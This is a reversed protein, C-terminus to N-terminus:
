IGIRRKRASKKSASVIHQKEMSLKTLLHYFFDRDPGKVVAQEHSEALAIPYGQGKIAQDLMIAAVHDVLRADQAIWAPIEVRGIETGVHLYFFHPRLEEPYADSLSANNCFVTSREFPELYFNAITTDVLHDVAQSSQAAAVDFDALVLRILQIIEKSKPLSIYGAVMIKEQYLMYLQALYRPLFYEKLPNKGELLWFILSGDFLLAFPADDAIEEKLRMAESAGVSFELEQRRCNVMDTSLALDEEQQATYIYPYSNLMVPQNRAGYHLAVTGINILFCAPGQHRDPYIQSGDVALVHYAGMPNRVKLREGLVGQWSPVPFTATASERIRYSLTIDNAITAWVALATTYEASCDYFLQDSVRALAQAVKSRDLV